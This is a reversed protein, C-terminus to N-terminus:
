VLNAEGSDVGVKTCVDHFLRSLVAHMHQIDSADDKWRSITRLAAKVLTPWNQPPRAEGRRLACALLIVACMWTQRVVFWTGGHRHHHAHRPIMEACLDVGQQALAGVYPGIGAAELPQHLAYYVFPRLLYERWELFRGQLYFSLEHTALEKDKFHICSPLYSYWMLVQKEFDDHQKALLHISKLWHREGHQYLHRLTENITRRMSIEAVYFFWGREEADTHDVMPSRNTSEVRTEGLDEPPSPFLDPYAFDSLGSSRLGLEPAMESEAKFCSWFVRQELHYPRNDVADASDWPRRGRARIHAQLRSAAQQIYFWAQLPRLSYKEFVSAFFLCQIDPVTVGLLGIRKKAALYYAEGTARDLASVDTPFHKDEIDDDAAIAEAEWPLTISALACALLVLCSSADWGLGHESARRATNLLQDAELIPNRPHVFVLFKRCLPVFDDELVGVGAATLAQLTGGTVLQGNRSYSSPFASSNDGAADLVFSDITKERSTLIGDFIPWRLLSESRLAAFPSKSHLGYSEPHSTDSTLNSAAAPFTSKLRAFLPSPVPQDAQDVNSSSSKPQLQLIHKIEELRSIIEQSAEDYASPEATTGDEDYICRARHHRCFSCMPRANDCKTKRQRCFRCATAARKRQALSPGTLRRKKTSREHARRPQKQDQGPVRTQGRDEEEHDSNIIVAIRPSISAAM